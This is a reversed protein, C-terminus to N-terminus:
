TKREVRVDYSVPFIWFWWRRHLYLKIRGVIKEEKHPSMEPSTPLYIIWTGGRKGVDFRYVRDQECYEVVEARDVLRVSYDKQM